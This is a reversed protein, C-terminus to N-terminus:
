TAHKNTIFFGMLLLSYSFITACKYFYDIQSYFERDVEYFYNALIIRLFFIVGWFLLFVSTYFNQKKLIPVITPTNVQKIFWLLSLAIYIISQFGFINLGLINKKTVLVISFLVVSLLTFSYIIRYNSLEKKFNWLFFSIYLVTVWPYVDNKLINTFILIEVIIAVLFYFWFYHISRRKFISILLCIILIAIYLSFM